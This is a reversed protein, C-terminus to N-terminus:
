LILSVVLLWDGAGMMAAVAGHLYFHFFPRTTVTRVVGLDFLM